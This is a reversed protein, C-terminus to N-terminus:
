HRCSKEAETPLSTDNSWEPRCISALEAAAAAADAAPSAAAAAAAAAESPINRDLM